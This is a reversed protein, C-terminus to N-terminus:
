VGRPHTRALQDLETAIAYFCHIEGETPGASSTGQFVEVLITGRRFFLEALRPRGLDLTHFFAEAGNDGLVISARTPTTYYTAAFWTDWLLDFVVQAQRRSRFISVLYSTYAHVGAVPGSEEADMYYGSIRGLAAPPLGFHLPEDRLLRRNTEVGAQVIKSGAPFVTPALAFLTPQIHTRALATGPMGVLIGLLAFGALIPYGASILL